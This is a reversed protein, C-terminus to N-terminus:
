DEDLQEAQEALESDREEQDAVKEKASHYAKGLGTKPERPGTEQDQPKCGMAFLIMFIILYRM